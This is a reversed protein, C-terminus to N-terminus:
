AHTTTESTSACMKLAIVFIWLIFAGITLGEALGILESGTAAAYATWVGSIIVVALTIFSYRAYGRLRM